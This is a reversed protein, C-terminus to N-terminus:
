HAAKEKDLTNLHEVYHDMLDYDYAIVNAGKYGHKKFLEYYEVLGNQAAICFHYNGDESTNIAKDGEKKDENLKLFVSKKMPLVGQAIEFANWREHESFAIVDMAEFTKSPTILRDIDEDSVPKLNEPNYKNLGLLGKKFYLGIIAYINSKQKIRPLDNWENEIQSQDTIRQYFFHEKKASEFIEDLLVNRTSFLEDDNGFYALYNDKKDESTLREKRVFFFNYSDKISILQKKINMAILCNYMDRDLSVFFFNVQKKHNTKIREKIEDYIKNIFSAEEINTNAHINVSSYYDHPLSLYDEEKYNSQRYKFLGNSLNFANIKLASDYVDVQIQYPELTYLGKDNKVKKVFQNSILIDRLLPQNIKGFGLFYAHIDVDGLTCDDNIFGKEKENLYNLYKSFPHNKTFLLANLDYKNYTRLKGKLLDKNTIPDHHKRKIFEEQVGNVNMIFRVDHKKRSPDNLYKIISSSFEDNKKDDDFFTIITYRKGKLRTVRKISKVYDNKLTYPAEVFGIRFKDLFTKEEVHKDLTGSDLVCTMKVKDDKFNKMMRKAEENFGFIRIVEKGSLFSKILRIINRIAIDLCYLTLSALAAYSIVLAGYYAIFLMIAKEKFLNALDSNISLKIVNLSDTFSSKVSDFFAADAVYVMRGITLLILTLVLLIPYLITDKLTLNRYRRIKSILLVLLVLELIIWITGIINGVM